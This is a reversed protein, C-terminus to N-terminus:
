ASVLDRRQFTAIGVLAGALGLGALWITATWNPETAPVPSIHTLLSTDLVWGPTRLVSGIFEVLFSWTVLGYATATALRPRLGYVLGGAGLVFLAPPATNLGAEALRGLGVGSHQSAAGV